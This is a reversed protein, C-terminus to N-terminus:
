GQALKEAIGSFRDIRRSAARLLLDRKGVIVVSTRSRTIATYLIERTLLPLDEDPLLLGVHEFESGQAKHVTIAYSREIRGRLSELPFTALGSGSPFLACLRAERTPGGGGAGEAIRLVLGQDGNFLGREYDNQQMMVPEGPLFDAGPRDGRLRAHLTANVAAAGTDRSASRTICLLRFSEFHALLRRLRAEDDPAFGADGRVYDRAILDDFGALSRVREEFWRDLFPEREEGKGKEDSLLEVRQWAIAKAEGRETIFERGMELQRSPFLDKARGDNVLLAVGYINRGAPKRPDMRYSHSLRVVARRRADGPTGDPAAEPATLAGVVTQLVHIRWPMFGAAAGPPCLDRFVAGAEVSPLQEADGLLVLRADDRVSRVLRDMLFLDIMSCEDVIVVRESLRNKEHHRFRDGHPSYGLLRHLTRPAPVEALRLDAESTAGALFATIAERMRNAAKGTPAAIAVSAPPLDPFRALLRLITVVISTKGTGPGGTIVTLPAHLASLAAYQQEASLAIPRGGQLAPDALVGELARQVDAAPLAFPAMALRAGLAAVLRDEFHRMRQHYLHDGDLLLPKFDGPRGIVTAVTAAPGKGSRASALLRAIAPAASTAGLCALVGDLFPRGPGAVPLRTSGENRAILSALALLCLARRDDTSLGEPWRALEWAVWLAEPGLDYEGLPALLDDPFPSEDGATAEGQLRSLSVRATGLPDIPRGAAMGRAGPTM